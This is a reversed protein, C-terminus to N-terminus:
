KAHPGGRRKGEEGGRGGFDREVEERLAQAFAGARRRIIAWSDANQTRADGSTTGAAGGTSETPKRASTARQRSQQQVQAVFPVETM